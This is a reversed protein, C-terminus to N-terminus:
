ILELKLDDISHFYEEHKNSVCLYDYISRTNISLKFKNTIKYIVNSISLHSHIPLSKGPEVYSVVSSLSLIDWLGYTLIHEVRLSSLSNVPYTESFVKRYLPREENRLSDRIELFFPHVSEVVRNHFDKSTM